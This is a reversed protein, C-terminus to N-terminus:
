QPQGMSRGNADFFLIADADANLRLTQAAQLRSAHGDRLILRDAGIRLHILTEAGLAEVLTVEAEIGDRGIRLQEPRVGVAGAGQPVGGALAAIAQGAPTTIEFVNMPPAGIFEAVFRSAPNEYLDMPTGIQEIKGESMIVIRDALSM